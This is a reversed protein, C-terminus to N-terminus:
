RRQVRVALRFPFHLIVFIHMLASIPCSCALPQPSLLFPAHRDQPTSTSSFARPHLFLPVAPGISWPALMLYQPGATIYDTIVSAAGTAVSSPMSPHEPTPFRDDHRNPLSDTEAEAPPQTKAPDRERPCPRREREMTSMKRSRWWQSSSAYTGTGESRIERPITPRILGAFDAASPALRPAM